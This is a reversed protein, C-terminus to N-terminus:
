IQTSGSLKSQVQKMINEQRANFDNLMNQADSVSVNVIAGAPCSTTKSTVVRMRLTPDDPAAGVDLKLM